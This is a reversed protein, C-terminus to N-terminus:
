VESLFDVKSGSEGAFEEGKKISLLKTKQKFTVIFSMRNTNEDISDFGLM